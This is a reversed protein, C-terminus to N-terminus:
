LSLAEWLTQYYEWRALVGDAQLVARPQEYGRPLSDTRKSLEVLRKYDCSNAVECKDITIWGRGYGDNAKPYRRAHLEVRGALALAMRAETLQKLKSWRM